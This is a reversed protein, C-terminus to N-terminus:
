IHEILDSTEFCAITDLPILATVTKTSSGSEGGIVGYLGARSKTGGGWWVCVCRKKAWKGEERIQSRVAVIKKM